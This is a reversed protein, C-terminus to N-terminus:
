LLQLMSGNLAALATKVATTVGPHLRGNSTLKRTFGFAPPHQTPVGGRDKPAAAPAHPLAAWQPRIQALQGALWVRAAFAVPRRM